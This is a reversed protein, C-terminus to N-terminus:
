QERYIITKTKEDYSIEGKYVWLWKRYVWGGNGGHFFNEHKTGPIMKVFARDDKDNEAFTIKLVLGLWSLRSFAYHNVLDGVVPRGLNVKSM